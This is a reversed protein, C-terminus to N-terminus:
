PHLLRCPLHLCPLSLPIWTCTDQEVTPGRSSNFHGKNLSNWLDCNQMKPIREQLFNAPLISFVMFLFLDVFECVVTCGQKLCKSITLQPATWFTYFSLCHYGMKKGVGQEKPKPSIVAWWSVSCRSLAVTWCRRHCFNHLFSYVKLYSM